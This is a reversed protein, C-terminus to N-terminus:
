AGAPRYRGSNPDHHRLPEGGCGYGPTRPRRPWHACRRSWSTGTPRQDPQGPQWSGAYVRLRDAGVIQAIEIAGRFEDVATRWEREDLANIATTYPTMGVIPLGLDDSVRRAQQASRLDRLPLGSRYGDQYILEAADLGAGAFLALAEPVTQEPTGLTHGAIRM